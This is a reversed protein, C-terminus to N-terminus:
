IGEPVNFMQGETSDHLISPVNSRLIGKLQMENPYHFTDTSVFKRAWIQIRFVKARSM